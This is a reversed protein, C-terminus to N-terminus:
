REAFALALTIGVIQATKLVTFCGRHRTQKSDNDGFAVKPVSRVNGEKSFIKCERERTIEGSPNTPQTARPQQYTM